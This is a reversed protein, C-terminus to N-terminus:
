DKLEKIMELKDEGETKLIGRSDATKKKKKKEKKPFIKKKM